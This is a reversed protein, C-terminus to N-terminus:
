SARYRAVTRVSGFSGALQMWEREAARGHKRCADHEQGPRLAERLDGRPHNFQIRVAAPGSCWACRAAAGSVPISKRDAPAPRASSAGVPLPERVPASPVAAQPTAATANKRRGDPVGPAKVRQPHQCSPCRVVQHHEAVPEWLHSCARCTWPIPAASV